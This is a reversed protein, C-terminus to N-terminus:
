DTDNEVVLNTRTWGTMRFLFRHKRKLIIVHEMMSKKTAKTAYDEVADLYETPDLLYIALLCLEIQDLPNGKRYLSFHETLETNEWAFSETHCKILTVVDLAANGHYFHEHSNQFLHRKLLLHEINIRGYCRCYKWNNVESLESNFQDIWTFLEYFLHNIDRYHMCVLLEVPSMYRKQEFEDMYHAFREQYRLCKEQYSIFDNKVKEKDITVTQLTHHHAYGVNQFIDPVTLREGYTNISKFNELHVGGSM